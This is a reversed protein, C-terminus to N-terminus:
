EADLLKELRRRLQHHGQQGLRRTTEDEVDKITARGAEVCAKGKRSADGASAASSTAKAGMWAGPREPCACCQVSTQSWELTAMTKAPITTLLAESMFHPLPRNALLPDTIL